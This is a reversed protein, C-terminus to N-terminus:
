FSNYAGHRDTCCSFNFCARVKYENDAAALRHQHNKVSQWGFQTVSEDAEAVCLM